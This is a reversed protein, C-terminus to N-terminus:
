KNTEQREPRYTIRHEVQDTPKGGLLQINKTVKDLGDMLDRYKAKNRTVKLREIIANREEELRDVLPKLEKQYTKSKQITGAASSKKSYGHKPGIKSINPKRGKGITELVERAVAKANLSAM